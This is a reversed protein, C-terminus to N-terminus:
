RPKKPEFYKCGLQRKELSGGHRGTQRYFKECGSPKSMTEGDRRIYSYGYHACNGCTGSDPAGGAWHAMGPVTAAEARELNEDIVTLGRM